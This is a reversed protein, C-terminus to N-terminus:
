EFLNYTLLFDLVPKPVHYNFVTNGVSQHQKTGRSRSFPAQGQGHRLEQGTAPSLIIIGASYAWGAHLETFKHMGVQM